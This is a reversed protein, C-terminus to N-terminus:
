FHHFSSSKFSSSIILISILLSCILSTMMTPATVCRSSSSSSSPSSSSPPSQHHNRHYNSFPVSRVHNSGPIGNSSGVALPDLGNPAVGLVLNTLNTVPTIMVTSGPPLRGGVGMGGSNGSSPVGGMGPVNRVDPSRQHPGLNYNHYNTSSPPLQPSSSASSPMVPALLSPHHQSATHSNTQSALSPILHHHGRHLLPPLM